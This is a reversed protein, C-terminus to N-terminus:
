KQATKVPAKPKWHKRFKGSLWFDLEKQFRSQVEPSNVDLDEKVGSGRVPKGGARKGSTKIAAQLKGDLGVKFYYALSATDELYGDIFVASTPAMTGDASPSLVLNCVKEPKRAAKPALTDIIYAKTPQNASLSLFSAMNPRIYNDVGETGLKAFFSSVSSQSSSHKTTRTTSKGASEARTIGLCVVALSVLLTRRAARM